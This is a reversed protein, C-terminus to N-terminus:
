WYSTGSDWLRLTNIYDMASYEEHYLGLYFILQARTPQRRENEWYYDILKVLFTTKPYHKISEIKERVMQKWQSASYSKKWKPILSIQEASLTSFKLNDIAGKSCYASLELIKNADTISCSNKIKRNRLFYKAKLSVFVKQTYKIHSWLIGQLHIKQSKEGKEIYIHYQSFNKLFKRVREYYYEYTTEDYSDIRVYDASDRKKIFDLRFQFAYLGPFIINDKM